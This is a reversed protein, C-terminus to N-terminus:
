LRRFWTWLTVCSSWATRSKKEYKRVPDWKFLQWLDQKKTVRKDKGHIIKVLLTAGLKTVRHFESNVRHLAACWESRDKWHGYKEYKRQPGALTIDNRILHPPDFRIADFVCNAFPLHRMDGVVDPRLEPKIDMTIFRDLNGGLWEKHGCSPDLILRSM